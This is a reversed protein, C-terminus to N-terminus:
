GRVRDYLFVDTPEGSINPYVQYTRLRGKRIFEYRELLRQSAMNEPHCTAFIRIRDASLWATQVVAHLAETMYGRGHADSRLVCGTEMAHVTTTTGIM